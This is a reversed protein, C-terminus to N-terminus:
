DGQPASVPSPMTRLRIKSRTPPPDPPKAQPVKQLRKKQPMVPKTTLAKPPTGEAQKGQSPSPPHISAGLPVQKLTQKSPELTPPGSPSQLPSDDQVQLGVLVNSVPINGEMVVFAYVSNKPLRNVLWITGNNWTVIQGPPLTGNQGHANVWKLVRQGQSAGFGSGKIKFKQDWAVVSPVYSRLEATLDPLPQADIEIQNDPQSPIIETLLKLQQSSLRPGSHSPKPKPDEVLQQVPAGEDVYLTETKNSQLVGGQYIAIWYIGQTPIPLQSLKIKKNTWTTVLVSPIDGLATSGAGWKLVNGTQSGLDNGRITLPDGYNVPVPEYFGIVPAASAVGAALALAATLGGIRMISGRSTM